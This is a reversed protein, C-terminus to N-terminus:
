GSLFGPRVDHFVDKRMLRGLASRAFYQLAGAM